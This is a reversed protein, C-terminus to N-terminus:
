TRALESKKIEDNEEFNWFMDWAGILHEKPFIGQYIDQITNENWCKSWVQLLGISGAFSQNIDNKACNGDADQGVIFKTITYETVESSTVVKEPTRVGNLYIMKVDQYKWLFCVHYLTGAVITERSAFKTSKGDRQLLFVLSNDEKLSVTIQMATCGENYIGLMHPQTVVGEQYNFWMCVTLEKGTVAPINHIKQHTSKTLFEISQIYECYNGSTYAQCICKLGNKAILHKGSSKCPNAICDFYPLVDKSICYEYKSCPDNLLCTEGQHQRYPDGQLHSWEKTKEVLTSTGIEKDSLQCERTKSNYNLSKCLILLVCTKICDKLLIDHLTQVFEEIVYSKTIVSFDREISDQSYAAMTLVMFIIVKTTEFKAIIYPKNKLMTQRKM